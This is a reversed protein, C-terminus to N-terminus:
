EDVYRWSVGVLLQRVGEWGCYPTPRYDHCESFHIQHQQFSVSAVVPLGPLPGYAVRTVLQYGLNGERQITAWIARGEELDPLHVRLVHIGAGGGMEVRLRPWPALVALASIASSYLKTETRWTRPFCDKPFLQSGDLCDDAELSGVAGSRALDWRATVRPHFDASFYVGAARPRPFSEHSSAGVPAYFLGAEQSEAREAELGVLLGSLAVSLLSLRLDRRM